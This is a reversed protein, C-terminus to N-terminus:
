KSSWEKYLSSFSNIDKLAGPEKKSNKNGELQERPLEPEIGLAWGNEIKKKVRARFHNGEDGFKYSALWLMRQLDISFSDYNNIASLFSPRDQWSRWCEVCARKVSYYTSSRFKESVFSARAKTKHLRIVRFFHLLNVEPQLLHGCQDIVLDICDDLVSHIVRFEDNGRVKSIGKMIKSWSGRFSNLNSPNLLTRCLQEAAHASQYQLTRTIQAVLYADPQTKFVETELLSVVDIDNIANKLDEYDAHPDDSYPDFYIDLEKLKGAQENESNLQSSIFNKYHSASLFTTKSKNLSLGYDSLSRSLSALAKYAESQDRAILTYDDVYRHWTVGSSDLLQDIANMLVEALVRAGQGGVPLGFSRGSTMQNLIRDVQRAVTSNNEFLDSVLNELRHHYIHEYFSSIDTQVVIASDSEMLPDNLTAEKYSHWSHEHIFFHNEDPCYRYSHATDSRLPELKEAISIALGNLYTNWFPHIKTTIRFGSTGSPVLLREHFITLSDIKLAADKKSLGDFEKFFNFALLAIEQHTDSVFKNDIDFPLTDNDGHLGIEKAAKEFHELRVSDM